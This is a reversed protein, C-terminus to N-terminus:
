EAILEGTNEDVIALKKGAFDILLKDGAKHDLNMM